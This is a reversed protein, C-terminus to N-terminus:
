ARSTRQSYLEHSVVGPVLGDVLPSLPLALDLSLAPEALSRSPADPGHALSLSLSVLVCRRLELFERYAPATPAQLPEAAISDSLLPYHTESDFGSRANELSPDTWRSRSSSRSLSRVRPRRVRCVTRHLADRGLRREQRRERDDAQRRDLLFLRPAAQHPRAHLRGPLGRM